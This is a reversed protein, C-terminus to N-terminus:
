EKVFKSTYIKGKEQLRLLYIGKRFDSIDVQKKYSLMECLLENGLVDYIKIQADQLRAEINLISNAPNPFIKLQGILNSEIGLTSDIVSVDDIYYYHCNGGSGMNLTDTGAEDYFNGITIYQEGGQATYVGSIQVWNLTDTIFGLNNEIQPAVNIGLMDNRTPAVVSIYAGIKSTAYKMINSRSVYFSVFYQSGPALVSTLAIQVYERLGSPSLCQGGTYFGGYANGTRANQFGFGNDPVHAWDFNATSCINFYDPSAQTPNIWFKSMSLQGIATPCNVTDEFSPNPVLNQSVSRFFLVSLILFIVRKM